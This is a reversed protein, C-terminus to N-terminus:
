RFFRSSSFNPSCSTSQGFTIGMRKSYFRPFVQYRISLLCRLFCVKTLKDLVETLALGIIDLSDKSLEVLCRVTEDVAPDTEVQTLDVGSNSPLQVVHALLSSSLFPSLVKNRLRNVLIHIIKQQHVATSSASSSYLSPAQGSMAAFAHHSEASRHQRVTGSPTTPSAQSASPRRAPAAPM